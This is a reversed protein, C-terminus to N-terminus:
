NNFKRWPRIKGDTYILYAIMFVPVIVILFPHRQFLCIVVTLFGIIIAWAEIDMMKNKHYRLGYSIM